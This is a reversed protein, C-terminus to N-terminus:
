AEEGEEAKIFPCEECPSVAKDSVEVLPCDPHRWKDGRKSWEGLPEDLWECWMTCDERGISMCFCTICGKPKKVGKILVSM